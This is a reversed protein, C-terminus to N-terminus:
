GIVMEFVGNKKKEYYYCSGVDNCSFAEIEEDMGYDDYPHKASTLSGPIDWMRGRYAMLKQNGEPGIGHPKEEDDSPADDYATAWEIMKSDLVHQNLLVLLETAKGGSPGIRVWTGDELTYMVHLRGVRPHDQMSDEPPYAADISWAAMGGLGSAARAIIDGASLFKKAEVKTENM